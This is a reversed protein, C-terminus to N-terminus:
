CCADRRGSSTLSGAQLPKFKGEPGLKENGTLLRVKGKSKMRFDSGKATIREKISVAMNFFSENVNISLKASTEIFQVTTGMNFSLKAALQQGEEPTVERTYLHNPKKTTNDTIFLDDADIERITHSDNDDDDEDDSFSEIQFLDMERKKNLKREANEEDEKAVLDIKNGVLIVDMDPGGYRHLRDVWKSINEYSERNTVDYVLMAGQAGRYYSGTIGAFREQGATDWIELKVQKNNQVITTTTSNDNENKKESPLSIIKSNYDIGLTSTYNVDFTDSTYRYLLSSKGVGSDGIVIIKFTMDVKNTFHNTNDVDLKGNLDIEMLDFNDHENKKNTKIKEEPEDKMEVQGNNTTTPKSRILNSSNSGFLKTNNELGKKQNNSFLTKFEVVRIENYCKNQYDAGGFIYCKNCLATMTTGTLGRPIQGSSRVQTWRFIYRRGQYLNYKRSNYEMTSKSEVCKESEDSMEKNDKGDNKQSTVAKDDKGEVKKLDIDINEIDLLFVDSSYPTGENGNKKGGFIAITTPSIQTASHGSRPLPSYGQTILKSWSYCSHLKIEQKGEGEEFSLSEKEKEQSSTMSEFKDGLKLKHEVLEINSLPLNLAWLANMDDAESYEAVDESNDSGGFILIRNGMKVSTHRYRPSPGTTSIKTGDVIMDTPGFRNTLTEKDSSSFYMTPQSWEMKGIDLLHLDNLPGECWGGFFLIQNVDITTASHESRVLPRSHGPAVKVLPKSWKWTKSSCELLYVGNDPDENWVSENFGSSKSYGGGIYNTVNEKLSSIKEQLSRRRGQGNQHQLSNRRPDTNGVLGVLNNELDQSQLSAKSRRGHRFAAMTSRIPIKSEYILSNGEQKKAYNNENEYNVNSDSLRRIPEFRKREEKKNNTHDNDNLVITTNEINKDNQDFSTATNSTINNDNEMDEDKIKKKSKKEDSDDLALYSQFELEEEDEDDYSNIMGNINSNYSYAGNITTVNNNTKTSKNFSSSSEKDLLGVKGGQNAKGKEGKGGEFSFTNGGTMGGFILITAPHTSIVTASHGYRPGASEETLIVEEEPIGYSLSETNFVSIQSSGEGKETCGGYIILNSDVEVMSHLFTPLPPLPISSPNMPNKDIEEDRSSSVTYRDQEVEMDKEKSINMMNQSDNEKDGKSNSNKNNDNDKRQQLYELSKRRLYSVPNPVGLGTQPRPPFEYATWTAM